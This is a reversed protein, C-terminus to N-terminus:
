PGIVITSQGYVQFGAPVEYTLKRPDYIIDVEGPGLRYSVCPFYQPKATARDWDGEPPTVPYASASCGDMVAVWKNNHQPGDVEPDLEGDKNYWKGNKGIWLYGTDTATAFMLIDGEQLDGLDVGTFGGSYGQNNVNPDGVDFTEPNSCDGVYGGLDARDVRGVFVPAYRGAKYIIDWPTDAPPPASIDVYQSAYFDLYLTTTTVPDDFKGDTYRFTVDTSYHYDLDRNYLNWKGKANDTALLQWSSKDASVVFPGLGRKWTWTNAYDCYVGANPVYVFRPDEYDIVGVGMLSWTGHLPDDNYWGQSGIPPGFKEVYQPAYTYAYVDGYTYKTFRPNETAAGWHHDPDNSPDPYMAIFGAAGGLDPPYGPWLESRAERKTILKAVDDVTPHGEVFPAGSFSYVGDPGAVVRDVSGVMKPNLWPDAGPPPNRTFDDMAIRETDYAPDDPVAEWYGPIYSKSTTDVSKSSVSVVYISRAQDYLTIPDPLPQDLGLVRGYDQFLQPPQTPDGPLLDDPLFHAPCVGVAPTMFTDIEPPWTWATGDKGTTEIDSTATFGTWQKGRLVTGDAGTVESDALEYFMPKPVRGRPLKILKVEWYQKGDLPATLIASGGVGVSWAESVVATDPTDVPTQAKLKGGESYSVAGPGSPSFFPDYWYEVTGPMDAPYADGGGQSMGPIPFATFPWTIKHKGGAVVKQSWGGTVTNEPYVDLMVTELAFQKTYRAVLQEHTITSVTVAVGSNARQRGASILQAIDGRHRNIIAQAAADPNETKDRWKQTAHVVVRVSCPLGPNGGDAPFHTGGYM